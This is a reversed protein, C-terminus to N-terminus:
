GAKSFYFNFPGPWVNTLRFIAYLSWLVLIIAIFKTQSCNFNYDTNRMWKVMFISFCHNNLVM